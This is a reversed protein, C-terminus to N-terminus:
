HILNEKIKGFVEQVINPLPIKSLVPAAVELLEFMGTSVVGIAEGTLIVDFLDKHKPPVKTRLGYEALVQGAGTLTGQIPALPTEPKPLLKNIAVNKAAAVGMIVMKKWFAMKTIQPVKVKEVEKESMTLRRAVKDPTEGTHKTQRQRFRIHLLRM